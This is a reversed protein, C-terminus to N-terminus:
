SAQVGTSCKFFREWCVYAAFISLNLGTIKWKQNFSNAVVVFEISTWGMLSHEAGSVIGSRQGGWVGSFFFMHLKSPQPKYSPDIKKVFHSIIFGRFSVALVGSFLGLNGSFSIWRSCGQFMLKWPSSTMNTEPLTHIWTPSLGVNTSQHKAWIWNTCGCPTITKECEQGLEKVAGDM